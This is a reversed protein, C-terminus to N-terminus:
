YTNDKAIIEEKTLKIDKLYQLMRKASEGDGYIKKCKRLRDSYEKDTIIKNIKNKIEAADHDVFVVNGGNLRELQRKGINISPLELYAGECFAMSSNGILVDVNAVLNMFINRPLNKSISLNPNSKVKDNELLTIMDQSGYDSNPYNIVCNVDLDHLANLTAQIQEYAFEKEGSLVHQIMLVLPKDSKFGFYKLIESRNIKDIEKFRDLAPNGTNFVRWKEEGMKILREAHEDAMTFHISALKSTAHRIPEDVDNINKGPYTRDGGAIHILPIQLYTCAIGVIISEERDGAVMVYDPELDDLIESLGSLLIGSSKAKGIYSDSNILSHIKGAIKFNDLKIDNFTYGFYESLHAGAVIVSLDFDSDHDFAKLVAYIIDYESRCGTVAIIRKKNM